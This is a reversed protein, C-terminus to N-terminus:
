VTMTSARSPSITKSPAPTGGSTGGTSSAPEDSPQAPVCFTPEAHGRRVGCSRPGPLRTAAPGNPTRPGLGCSRHVSETMQILEARVQASTGPELSAEIILTDDDVDLVWLLTVQDPILARWGGDAYLHVRFEGTDCDSIDTRAPVRREIYTGAFGDVTVDTPASVRLGKQGALAAVVEDTSSVASRGLETGDWRCPDAYVDGINAVTAM